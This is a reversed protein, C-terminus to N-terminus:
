SNSSKKLQSTDSHKQAIVTKFKFYKEFSSILVLWVKKQKVM